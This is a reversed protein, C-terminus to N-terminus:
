CRVQKVSIGMGADILGWQISVAPLGGEVRRRCVADVAANAYGYSCQGANGFAAVISSFCVFTSVQDPYNRCASDLNRAGEVKVRVVKRWSEETCASFVSDHLTGALHFVGVSSLSTLKDSNFQQSTPYCVFYNM